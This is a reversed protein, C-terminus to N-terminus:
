PAPAAIEAAGSRWSEFFHVVQAAAADIPNAVPVPDIPEFPPVPPHAFRHEGSRSSLLGHTAPAFRFLGRTLRVSGLEVNDALPASSRALDTHVPDAEVIRGGAARVLAETARNPVVEDHEAMQFLVDAEREALLTTFSMSDGGDLLTQYIALEPHFSAPYADADLAAADLGLKPLLLALFLDAFTASHEVLRSLDGGTVALAAAGIEPETAVFTTGVIGGLSVGVFGLPEAAFSLSSLGVASQAASWDGERVLRVAGMLDVVSQRLVDRVYAASFAPLEGESEAVGLYEVQVEMGARDGFGDPGEGTGYRHLTDVTRGLARLGHFPIDIALVAWGADALADALALMDGRQGGLGHQFIAVPVRAPDGAPLTLTFPVEEVQRVVLRGSADRTFTGHVGPAPSAFSPSEFRGQVLWGIRRHAVGGEVDLGPLEVAPSGLLADLEAGAPIVADVLAVPAPGEWVIARADRLAPGVRQVTFVALAAVRERPVGDTALSALVPAYEDYAAADLPDAPRGSADRIAAFRPDPGIPAGQDDLVSTTVVAAYRRGPVLPHGDYPRLALQGLEPHYHVLVPVRRRFTSSAMDADVLFVASDERASEAPSAPLSAPQLSRPPFYFFVPAVTSFGELEALSARQADPFTEPVAMAESPLAGLAVRGSADLYLDDPFPIAGFDMPDAALEFRPRVRAPDVGGDTQAPGDCGACALIAVLWSIRPPARGDTRTTFRM